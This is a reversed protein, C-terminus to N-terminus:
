AAEITDLVDIWARATPLRNDPDPDLATTLLRLLEPHLGARHSQLPAMRRERIAQLTEAMGVGAYPFHGGSLLVYATVALGWLDTAPAIVNDVLVEPSTFKCTSVRMQPLTLRDGGEEIAAIGFDCLIARDDKERIIINSPKVDRHIIGRMERGNDENVWRFNHAYDLSEAVQRLYRRVVKEEMDRNRAFVQDLSKGDIYEMIMFLFGEQPDGGAEHVAAIGPGGSSSLLRTLEAERQFRRVLRDLRAASSSSETILLEPRLFKVAVWKRDGHKRGRWVQGYGGEGIKQYVQFRQPFDRYLALPFMTPSPAHVLRSSELHESEDAEWRLLLTPGGVGLTVMDGPRLPHPGGVVRKNNLYTGQTSENDILDWRGQGRCQLIAHKRSVSGDLIPDFVIDNTSSRGLTVEEGDQVFTTPARGKGSVAICIIM